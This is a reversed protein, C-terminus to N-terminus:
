KSLDLIFEKFGDLDIIEDALDIIESEIQSKLEENIKQSSEIFDIIKQPTIFGKKENDLMLFANELNKETFLKEKPICMRVFEEYDIDGNDNFDMSNIINEVEKSKIVIKAEKYAKFIESQSIQFDMNKDLKEYLQNIENLLKNDSFHYSLYTLILQYFKTKKRLKKLKTLQKKEIDTIKRGVKIEDFFKHNLAEEITIRQKPENKLCKSILDKGEESINNFYKEDFNYKSEFIKSKIEEETEGEFPLYGSLLYYM